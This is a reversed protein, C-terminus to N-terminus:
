GIEEVVRRALATNREAYVQSVDAKCHGLIVQAAELGYIQRVRTALAHRLRNPSFVPIGAAVCGRRVARGYSDKNYSARPARKPTKKRGRARSSPTHPTKRNARRTANRAEIWAAPSFLPADPDAKLWPKLIAQARTGLIVERDKGALQTKHRAPSYIWLDGTRDIQGTTMSCVETPRMGTLHQLEIMAKVPPSVHPLIAAVHEDSVPKIKRPERIGDRGARLPAVAQLRHYADAPLLENEVAWRIFRRIKGLHYGITSRCLDAKIFETRVAKFALPGFEAAPREGYLRKVPKLADRIKAIEPTPKGDRQYHEHAFKWYRAILETMTLDPCTQGPRRLSRGNALWEAVLRDYEAKAESSRWPGCYFDVGNLTV